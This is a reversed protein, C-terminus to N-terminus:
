NSSAIKGIVNVYGKHIIDEPINIMNSFKIKSQSIAQASRCDMLLVTTSKVSIHQYLTALKEFLDANRNTTTVYVNKADIKEQNQREM